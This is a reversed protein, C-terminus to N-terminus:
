FIIIGVLEKNSSTAKAIKTAIYVGELWGGVLIIAATEARDNEKLFSNSNM